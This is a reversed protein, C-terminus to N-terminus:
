FLFVNKKKSWFIIKLAKNKQIVKLSLLYLINILVKQWCIIKDVLFRGWFNTLFLKLLKLFQLACYQM